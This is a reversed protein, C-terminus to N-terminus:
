VIPRMPRVWANRLHPFRQDLLMSAENATELKPEPRTATVALAQALQRLRRSRGSRRGGRVGAARCAEVSMNFYPRTFDIHMAKLENIM